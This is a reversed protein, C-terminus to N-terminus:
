ARQFELNLEFIRGDYLVAARVSQFFKRVILNRNRLFLSFLMSFSHVYLLPSIFNIKYM